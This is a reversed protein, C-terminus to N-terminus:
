GGGVFSVVEVTDGDRLITEAYAMKPLIAGNREVAVRETSFQAQLLMDRVSKGIYCPCEKGNVRLMFGDKRNKLYTIQGERCDGFIWAPM